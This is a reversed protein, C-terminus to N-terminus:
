ANFIVDSSLVKLNTSEGPRVLVFDIREQTLPFGYRLSYDHAYQNLFTDYTIGADCLAHSERWADKMQLQDLGYSYLPSFENYNFDGSMLVPAGPEAFEDVFLKLQDIQAKRTEDTGRANLHTGVLNLLKGSPFQILALLAGKKSLCDDKECNWFAMKASRVVPYKSLLRIGGSTLRPFAHPGNVEFPYVESHFNKQGKPSFVEELFVFDPNQLEIASMAEGYRFTDKVAFPVGWTNFSVVSFPFSEALATQTLSFFIILIAKTLSCYNRYNM